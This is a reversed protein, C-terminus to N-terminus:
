TFLEDFKKKAEAMESLDASYDRAERGRLSDTIREVPVLMPTLSLNALVGKLAHACEFAKDLDGNEIFGSIGDFNKDDLIRGVLKLYLDEKNACRAIGEDVDAGYARLGDITIM